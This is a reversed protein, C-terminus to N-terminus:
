QHCCMSIHTDLTFISAERSTYEREVTRDIINPSVVSWTNGSADFSYVNTTIMHSFVTMELETGWTGNVSMGSNNVYDKVTLLNLPQM